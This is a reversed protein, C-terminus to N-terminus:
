SPAARPPTIDHAHHMLDHAFYQVLTEVTFTSGNSRRGPRAWQQGTVGRITAVIRAAATDLETAVREPRELWYRREQAAADQDWNAFLPDPESLMAHLRGDFM